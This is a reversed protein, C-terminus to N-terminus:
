KCFLEGFNYLWKIVGEESQYQKDVEAPISDRELILKLCGLSANGEPLTEYAHILRAKFIERSMENYENEVIWTSSNLANWAGEVDNKRLFILARLRWSFWFGPTIEATKDLIKICEMENGQAYWAGACQVMSYLHYPAARYARHYNSYALESNGMEDHAMGQTLALPEIYIPSYDLGLREAKEVERLCIAWSRTDRAERSKLLHMEAKYRFYFIYVCYVSVIVVILSLFRVAGQKRKRLSQGQSFAVYISFLIVHLPREHPYSFFSDCLFALFGALLVLDAGYRVKSGEIIKTWYGRITCIVIGLFALFGLSGYESWIWLYDNHPTSFQILSKDLYWGSVGYKPFYLKWHGPGVGLFPYDWIMKVSNKWMMLRELNGDFSEAKATQFFFLESFKDHYTSWLYYGGVVLLVSLFLGLYVKFRLSSISYKVYIPILVVASAGIGLALFASKSKLLVIFTLSCIGLIVTLFKVITNSQSLYLIFIFPLSIVLMSAFLNPNSLTSVLDSYSHFIDKQFIAQYAGLALIGILFGCIAWACKEKFRPDNQIFFYFSFACGLGLFNKMGEAMAERPSL